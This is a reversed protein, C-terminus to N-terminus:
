DVSYARRGSDWLMPYLNFYKGRRALLV